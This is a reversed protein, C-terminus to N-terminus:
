TWRSGFRWRIVGATGLVRALRRGGVPRLIKRHMRWIRSQPIRWDETTRITTFSTASTLVVVFGLGSFKNMCDHSFKHLSPVEAYAWPTLKTTWCLRHTPSERGYLLLEVPIIVTSQIDNQRVLRFCGTWCGTTTANLTLISTGAVRDRRTNRWRLISLFFVDNM